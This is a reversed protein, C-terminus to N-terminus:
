VPKNEKDDAGQMRTSTGTQWHDQQKPQNQKHSSTGSRIPEKAASEDAISSKSLIVEENAKSISSNMDYADSAANTNLAALM